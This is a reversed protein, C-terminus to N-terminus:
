EEVREKKNMLIVFKLCKKVKRYYQMHVSSDYLRNTLYSKKKNKAYELLASFKKASRKLKGGDEINSKKIKGGKTGNNGYKLVFKLENPNYRM